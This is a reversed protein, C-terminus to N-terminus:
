QGYKANYNRWPVFGNSTHFGWDHRRPGYFCLTMTGPKVHVIRHIRKPTIWNWWRVWRVFKGFGLQPTIEEQYGGRLVLSLFNVPHDHPDPEQDPKNFWHVMVGGWPTHALFLRTLYGSPPTSWRWFAWASGSKYERRM